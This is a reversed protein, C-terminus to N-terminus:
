DWLPYAPIMDDFPFPIVKKEIIQRSDLLKAMQHVPGYIPARGESGGYGWPKEGPGGPRGVVIRGVMGLVEQFRSFYDYTGEVQFVWDHSLKEYGLDFPAAAEPIRLEHNDNQPHYATVTMLQISANHFRVTEGPRVYLGIPDFCWLSESLRLRGRVAAPEAARQSQPAPANQPSLARWCALSIGGGALFHRRTVRITKM